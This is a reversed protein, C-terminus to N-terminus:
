NQISTLIGNEFYLYNGGGYVWQERVGYRTTTTNIYKPKGWSSDLVDQKTMGITVGERKKRAKEEAERRAREEAEKKARAKREAEEQAKKEAEIRNVENTANNYMDIITQNGLDKYKELLTQASSYDKNNIKEQGQAIVQQLMQEKIENQKNTALDTIEKNIDKNDKIVTDYLNYAEIYKQEQIYKNAKNINKIENQKNTALDTIEKNIDKNDKIVTDYLNYAEIYKQEQIYKNAKNINLYGNAKLYKNCITQNSSNKDKITEIMSVLKEDDNGNKINEIREDIAQYLKKYAESSFETEETHEEIISTFKKFDSDNKIVEYCISLDNNYKEIRRQEKIYNTIGIYSFIIIMITLIIGIISYIIKKPVIYRTKKNLSTDCDKCFHLKLDDYEKYCYPCQMTEKKSINFKKMLKEVLGINQKEVKEKNELIPTNQNKYCDKYCYPCQMTEKKSINFKKMLKEVLGINQKEVKEKNELIPTNQNKYCNECYGKYMKYEDETIKKNCKKCKDYDNVELGMAEIEEKSAM